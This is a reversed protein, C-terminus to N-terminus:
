EDDEPERWSYTTDGVTARHDRQASHRRMTCRWGHENQADCPDLRATLAYLADAIAETEDLLEDLEDVTGRAPESARLSQASDKAMDLFFRVDAVTAPTPMRMKLGGAGTM